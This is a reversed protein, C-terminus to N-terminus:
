VKSIFSHDGGTVPIFGVLGVASIVLMDDTNMIIMISLLKLTYALLLMNTGTPFKSSLFSWLTVGLLSIIQLVFIDTYYVGKFYFFDLLVLSFLGYGINRLIKLLFILSFSAFISLPFM